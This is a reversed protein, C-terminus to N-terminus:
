KERIKKNSKNNTTMERDSRRSEKNKNIWLKGGIEGSERIWQNEFM